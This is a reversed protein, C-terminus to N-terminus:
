CAPLDPKSKNEKKVKFKKSNEEESQSNQSDSSQHEVRCLVFPIM